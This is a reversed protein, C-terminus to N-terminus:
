KDLCQKMYLMTKSVATATHGSDFRSEVKRNFAATTMEVIDDVINKGIIEAIKEIRREIAAQVDVSGKILWEYQPNQNFKLNDLLNSHFKALEMLEFDNCVFEEAKTTRENSEIGSGYDTKPPM